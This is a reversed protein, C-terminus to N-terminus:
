RTGLAVAAKRSCGHLGNDSSGLVAWLLYAAGGREAGWM